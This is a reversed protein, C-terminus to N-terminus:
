KVGARGGARGGGQSPTTESPKSPEETGVSGIPESGSLNQQKVLNDIDAQLEKYFRDADEQSLKTNELQKKTKEVEKFEATNSQELLYLPNENIRRQIELLQDNTLGFLAADWAVVQQVSLRKNSQLRILSDKIIKNKVAVTYGAIPGAYIIMKQLGPKPIWFRKATSAANAFLDSNKGIFDKMTKQFYSDTQMEKIVKNFTNLEYGNLGSLWTGLDQTSYNPKSLKFNDFKSSLDSIAKKGYKIEKFLKDAPPIDLLFPLALFISNVAIGMNDKEKISQYLAYGGAIADIALETILGATAALGFPGTLVTSAIIGALAAGMQIYGGYEDWFDSTCPIDWQNDLSSGDSTIDPIYYKVNGSSDRYASGVTKGDSTKLEGRAIKELFEKAGRGCYPTNGCQSENKVGITCELWTTDYINTVRTQTIVWKYFEEKLKEKEKEKERKDQSVKQKIIVQRKQESGSDNGAVIKNLKGFLKNNIKKTLFKSNESSIRTPQCAFLQYSIMESLTDKDNLDWANRLLKWSDSPPNSSGVCSKFVNLEEDNLFCFPSCNQNTVGINEANVDNYDALNRMYKLEPNVEGNEPKIGGEKPAFINTKKREDLYLKYANVDSGKPKYNAACLIWKNNYSGSKALPEGDGCPNKAKDPYKSIFWERFNDGDNEKPLSEYTKNYLETATKVFYGQPIGYMKKGDIVEPKRPEPDGQQRNQTRRNYIENELIISSLTTTGKGYNPLDPTNGGKGLKVVDNYLELLENLNKSMILNVWADVLKGLESNTPNKLWKNFGEEPKDISELLNKLNKTDKLKGNKDLLTNSLKVTSVRPDITSGKMIFPNYKINKGNKTLFVDFYNGTKTLGNYSRDDPKEEFMRIYYFGNADKLVKGDWDHFRGKSYYGDIPEEYTLPIFFAGDGDKSIKFNVKTKPNTLRSDSIPVWQGVYPFKVGESWGEVNSMYKGKSDSYSYPKWGIGDGNFGGNSPSYQESILKIEQKNENLTKSSDYKMMLLLRELIEKQSSGM